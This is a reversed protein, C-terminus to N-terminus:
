RPCAPRLRRPRPPAGAASPSRAGPVRGRGPGLTRRLARDARRRPVDGHARGARVGVPRARRGTTRSLGPPSSRTPPETTVPHPLDGQGVPPRQVPVLVARGLAPHRRARRRRAGGLRDRGVSAARSPAGGYRVEVTFGAGAVPREPTVRLKASRAHLAAQRGDVLVRSVRFGSWTSASGAALADPAARQDRGATSGTPPSGTPGPRLARGPVRRQRAPCTPTARRQPASRPDWGCRPRYDRRSPVGRASRTARELPHRGPVTEGRMVLSAPGVTAHAGIRAAPPDRQAPRADRGARHTM